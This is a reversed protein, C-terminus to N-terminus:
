YRPLSSAGRLGSETMRAPLGRRYLPTLRTARTSAEAASVSAAVMATLAARDLVNVTVRPPLLVSPLGVCATSPCFTMKSIVCGADPPGYVSDYPDAYSNVALRGDGVSLVAALGMSMSPKM